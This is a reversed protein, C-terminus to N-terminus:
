RTTGILAQLRALTNAHAPHLDRRWSAIRPFRVTVVSKDRRSEAEKEFHLEPVPVSGFRARRAEQLEEQANSCIKVQRIATVASM